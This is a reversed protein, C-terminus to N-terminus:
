SDHLAIADDLDIGGIEISITQHRQVAGPPRPHARRDGIAGSTLLAEEKRVDKSITKLAM